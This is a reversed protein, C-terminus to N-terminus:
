LSQIRFHEYAFGRVMAASQLISGIVWIMGALIITKKRGWRDALQTVALAGILSGKFSFVDTFLSFHHPFSIHQSKRALLHLSQLIVM